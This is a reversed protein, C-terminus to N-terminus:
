GLGALNLTAKTMRESSYNSGDFEDFSGSYINKIGYCWEEVLFHDFGVDIFEKPVELKSYACTILGALKAELLSYSFSEKVSTHVYIEHRHLESLVKDNELRGLFRVPLGHESVFNELKRRNKGWGIITLKYGSDLDYLRKFVDLLFTINKRAELAGAYVISKREREEEPNSVFKSQDVGLEIVDINKTLAGNFHEQCIYDRYPYSVTAVPHLIGNIIAIERKRFCRGRGGPVSIAQLNDSWVAHLITISPTNSNWSIYIDEFVRLDVRNNLIRRYLIKTVDAKYIFGFPAYFFNVVREVLHPIYRCWAPLSDLTIVEVKWGRQSLVKELNIAHFFAGGSQSRFGGYYINVTPM